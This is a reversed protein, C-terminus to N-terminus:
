QRACADLSSWADAISAHASIDHAPAYFVARRNNVQTKIVDLPVVLTHTISCSLAGALTVRSLYDARSRKSPTGSARDHDKAQGVSAVSAGPKAHRAALLTCRAHGAAIQSHRYRRPRADERHACLVGKPKAIQANSPNGRSIMFTSGRHARAHRDTSPDAAAVAAAAAAALLPLKMGLRAGVEMCVRRVEWYATFTGLDQPSNLRRAHRKM